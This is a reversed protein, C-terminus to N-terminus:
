RRLDRSIEGINTKVTWGFVCILPTIILVRKMFPRTTYFCPFALQSSDINIKIVVLHSISSM